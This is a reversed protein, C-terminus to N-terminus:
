GGAKAFREHEGPETRMQESNEIAHLLDIVACVDAAAYTLQLESLPWEGWNEHDVSGKFPYSANLFARTLHDMSCWRQHYPTFDAIECWGAATSAAGRSRM